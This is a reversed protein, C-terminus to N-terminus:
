NGSGPNNRIPFAQFITSVADGKNEGPCFRLNELVLVQGDSLASASESAQSSCCVESVFKVSTGELLQGLRDAVPKM